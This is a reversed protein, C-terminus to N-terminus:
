IKTLKVSADPLRRAIGWMLEVLLHEHDHEYMVEILKLMPCRFTKRDQSKLCISRRMCCWLTLKELCPANQLFSGLDELKRGMDCDCEDDLFCRKLSLPRLNPFMPFKDSNRDLMAMTKYHTLELSTVNFLGRLLSRQHMKIPLATSSKIDRSYNLCCTLELDELAPCGSGILESFHSDLKLNSLRLRKLRSLGSSLHPLKFPLDDAYYPIQIELVSPCYFDDWNEKIQRCAGVGFEREDINIYPM